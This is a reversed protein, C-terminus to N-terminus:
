LLCVRIGLQPRTAAKARVMMSKWLLAARTHAQGINEIQKLLRSAPKVFLPNIHSM